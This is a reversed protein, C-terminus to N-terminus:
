SVVSVVLYTGAFIVKVFEFLQNRCVIMGIIAVIATVAYTITIKKKSVFYFVIFVLTSKHIMSALLVLVLFKFFKRKKIYEYAWLVGISVSIVQRYGTLSFMNYFIGSYLLFAIFPDDSNKYVFRGLSSMFVVAVAFKYFGHHNWISSVLKEFFVYGPEFGDILNDGFYYNKFYEFCEKWSLDAHMEFIRLYNSTDSGVYDARLGSLLIWQICQLIVFWKKKTQIEIESADRKKQPTYLLGWAEVLM